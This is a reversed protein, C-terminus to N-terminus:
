ASAAHGLQHIQGVGVDQQHRLLHDILNTDEVLTVLVPTCVIIIRHQSAPLANWYQYSRIGAARTLIIVTRFSIKPVLNDIHALLLTRCVEVM